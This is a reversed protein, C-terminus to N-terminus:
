FTISVEIIRNSQKKQFAHEIANEVFPQIMMPPVLLQEASTDGITQIQFTFSHDRSIQEISLYHELAHIEETLPILDTRSHELTARMLKSFKALQYRASRHEKENIMSQITNLANFIFHPNMQLQLAKQELELVNKEMELREAARRAKRRIRNLWLAFIGFLLLLGVVLMSTRFWWTQWVPPQIVFSATIPHNTAVRDENFAKVKFTYAGPALNAYNVIRNSQPPSWERHLGELLWSYTVKSPAPHNIGQFEFALQHEHYPLELPAQLSGWSQFLDAYPTNQLSDYALRINTFRLKPPQENKRNTGAQYHSLGGTTGFWISGSSDVLVASECTEGGPFGETVGYSQVQLIENHGANFQICDIGTQHGLWLQNAETFSLLYVNNSRLSTSQDFTQIRFSDQYLPLKFIGAKATGGWLYGRQDEHLTRVEVDPLGNQQDLTVSLSDGQIFGIGGTRSAYWVRAQQDLHLDYIFTSPLGDSRDFHRIRYTNGMSDRPDLAIRAVGADAMAVWIHGASDQLIDQIQDGGLGDWSKFFRYSIGDYMALGEGETGIWIKGSRDAFIARSKVDMFGNDQSYNSFQQGDFISIGRSTALWLRQSSDRCLAYVERDALGERETYNEFQQDSYFYKSLGGGATALWYDGWDDQVICRVNDSELGKQDREKLFAPSQSLPDWIFVGENVLGVWIRDLQDRFLTNIGLGDELLDSYEFRRIGQATFINIGENITAMWLQDYHDEVFAKITNSTLGQETTYQEVRDGQLCYAGQDSGVWLRGKQDLHLAYVFLQPPLASQTAWNLLGQEGMRFLGETTGVWLQGQADQAICQVNIPASNTPTFHQFQQGDYRSLGRNSGIWINHEEDEYLAAIYISSLGDRETFIQFQQGDYRSLGGGWTGLWIYGRSDQLLAHIQSHGVEALPFNKM